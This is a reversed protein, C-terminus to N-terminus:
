AVRAIFLSSARPVGRLALPRPQIFGSRQIRLLPQSRLKQIATEAKLHLWADDNYQSNIVVRHGTERDTGYACLVAVGASITAAV